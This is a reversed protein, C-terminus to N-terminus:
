LELRRIKRLHQLRQGFKSGPPRVPQRGHHSHYTKQGCRHSCASQRRPRHRSLVGNRRQGRQGRGRGSPPHRRPHDREPCYDRDSLTDLTEEAGQLAAEFRGQSMSGSCDIVLMVAIPPSYDIAQVPLMEQLLSGALDERNYAHPVPNGDAGIDNEGGVTLMSGGLDYVYEYLAQDFGEPMGPAKLDSNAINVLVVQQYACLEKATAPISAIDDHINMVRVTYNESLIGELEAAEGVHNELILIDEFVSIDLSTQFVNNQTVFDNGSEITVLLDHMGASQFVHPITLTQEGKQLTFSLPEDAFQKDSLTVTVNTPEEISSEVTLSLNVTQGLVVRDSPLSAGTLQIEGHEEDPFCVTDIKVGTASIIQATTLADEDTEFGDSLLVIKSTKPNTFQEAAFKLAASINTASTDPTQAGLYQRYAERADYSLPAAYVPELGFTVIGIKDNKGCVNLISQIYDDRVDSQESGSDSADVVILLENERNPVTYSFSIGAILTVCLTVCLAHLVVSIVRNRTRRFKKPLRLFPILTLLLAPILLFLLWPNAFGISFDSM